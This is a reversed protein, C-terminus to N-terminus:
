PLQIAKVVGHATPAIVLKGTAILWKAGTCTPAHAVPRGGADLVVLGEEGAAAVIIPGGPRDVVALADVGGSLSRRWLQTGDRKLAFVHASQASCVIEHFGDGLLDAGAIATVRDGLSTRWLEKGKRDFCHLDGSDVGVFIKPLPGDGVRVSAVATMEPGLSRSKWRLRGDSGILNFHFYDNGLAVAQKGDGDVDDALGVTASHAYFVNKWLM